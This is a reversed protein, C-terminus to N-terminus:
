NMIPTYTGGILLYITCHDLIRKIKKARIRNSSEIHYLGSILYLTLASVGFILLGIFYTLPLGYAVFLVISIAIIVIGISVGFFHSISNFMEQNFSYSPIDIKELRRNKDM